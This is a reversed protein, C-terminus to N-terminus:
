AWKELTDGFHQKLLIVKLQLRGLLGSLQSVNDSIEFLHKFELLSPIYRNSQLAALPYYVLVLGHLSYNLVITCM